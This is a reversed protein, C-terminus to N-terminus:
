GQSGSRKREWVIEMVSKLVKLEVEDLSELNDLKGKIYVVQEDIVSLQKKEKGESLRGVFYTAVSGTVMGILGIGVFMLFVALFRGGMTQPSIDGYGVTTTTVVSWWLADAFTHIGPELVRIGLAGILMLGFTTLIVYFLGNTQFIGKLASTTKSFFLALRLLKFTKVFRLIRAAKGIRLFRVLRLLRALRFAKDFPIIAILDVINKLFYEKKDKAKILRIVYDAAFILLISSDLFSLYTKQPVTLNVSLEVFLIIAVILALSAMIVEYLINENPKQEIAPNLM